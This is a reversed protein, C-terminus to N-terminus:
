SEDIAYQAGAACHPLFLTEIPNNPILFFIVLFQLVHPVIRDLSAHHFDTIFVIVKHKGWSSIPRRGIDPLLARGVPFWVLPHSTWLTWSGHDVGIVNCIAQRHPRTRRIPQDLSGAPSLDKLRKRLAHAIHGSALSSRRRHHNM